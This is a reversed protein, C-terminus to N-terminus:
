NPPTASKSMLLLSFFLLVAHGSQIWCMCNQVTSVDHIAASFFHICLQNHFQHMEVVDDNSVLGICVEGEGESFIHCSFLCAIFGFCTTFTHMVDRWQKDGALIINNSMGDAM